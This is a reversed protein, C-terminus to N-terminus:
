ISTHRNNPIKYHPIIKYKCNGYTKWFMRALAEMTKPFDASFLVAQKEHRLNNVMKMVELEFGMDSMHDAEDM